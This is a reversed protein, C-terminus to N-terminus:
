RTVLVRDLHFLEWGLLMFQLAPLQEGFFQRVFVNINGITSRPVVVIDFRSLPFDADLRGSKVAEDLRIRTVKLTRAGDRHFVVISNRAADDEFGGARTIAQLVTVFPDAPFSGPSKVRGLVHVQNGAVEAVIVTVRPDRYEASLLEILAAELERPTRGAAVIDGVPFVSIRGDPRVRFDKVMEPDLQGVDLRLLDGPVLRYEEVQSWDMATSDAGTTFRLSEITPPRQAFAPAAVLLIASLSLISRILPVGM